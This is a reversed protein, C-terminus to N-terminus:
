PAGVMGNAGYEVQDFVRRLFFLNQLAVLRRLRHTDAATWDGSTAAGTIQAMSELKGYTPGLLQGMFSRSAFRSLQTDSGFARYFDLQGRTLKSVGANGEKLWGLAGSHSLGERVWDRPDTSLTEGSALGYAAYGLMGFTVGAMLGSLTNMDHRQLGAILYRETAAAAFSKYIGLMSAVPKSM